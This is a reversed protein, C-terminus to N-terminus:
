LRKILKVQDSSENQAVQFFYVGPKLEPEAKFRFHQETQKSCAVEETHLIEGRLNLLKLVAKGEQPVSYSVEFEKDFPNPQPSEIKVSEATADEINVPTIMSYETEGSANTLKVRYYNTGIQAKADRFRYSLVDNSNGAGPKTGISEFNVGDLSREITFSENEIENVTIWKLEVTNGQAEADFTLLSMAIQQIISETAGVTAFLTPNSQNKFETSIWENSRVVNAVHVEDLLGGFYYLKRNPERGIQLPDSSGALSIDTQLSRDRVGDIYTAMSDGKDSYVAAVFYWRGKELQKGTEEANISAMVANENSISFEIRRDKSISLRYGGNFGSQNTLITQEKRDDVRVWASVSLDGTIDVDEATNLCPFQSSNKEAAVYVDKSDSAPPIATVQNSWPTKTSLLGRLHWVGKYTKNWANQGSENAAYKNNFYLFVPKTEKNLSDMQVWAQLTGAVPDYKEIEYNLLTIGDAKTFRFDNGVDSTVKGGNSVSKLDADAISIMVPFKHLTENQPLDSAKLEIKKRFKYEALTEIGNFKNNAISQEYDGVVNYVLAVGFVGAAFVGAAIVARLKHQLKTKTKVKTSLRTYPKKM